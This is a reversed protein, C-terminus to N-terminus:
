EDLWGLEKCKENIAQLEQMTIYSEEDEDYKSVTKDHWFQIIDETKKNSYECYFIGEKGNRMTYGLEEFMKDAKSM